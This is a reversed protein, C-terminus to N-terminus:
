TALNPRLCLHLKSSLAPIRLCHAVFGLGFSNQMGSRATQHARLTPALLGRDAHEVVIQVRSHGFMWLLEDNVATGAFGGAVPGGKIGDHALQGLEFIVLRQEDLRSLRNSNKLGM